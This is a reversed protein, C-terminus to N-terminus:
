AGIQMKADLNKRGHLGGLSRTPKFAPWVRVAHGAVGVFLISCAIRIQGNCQMLLNCGDASPNRLSEESDVKEGM